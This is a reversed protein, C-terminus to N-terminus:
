GIIKPPIIRIGGLRNYAFTTGEPSFKAFVRFAPVMGILYFAISGALLGCAFSAIQMLCITLPNRNAIMSKLKLYVILTTPLAVAASFVIRVFHEASGPGPWFLLPGNLQVVQNNGLVEVLRGPPAATKLAEFVAPSLDKVALTVSDTVCYFAGRVADPIGSSFNLTSEIIARMYILGKNQWFSYPM